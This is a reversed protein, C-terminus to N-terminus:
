WTLYHITYRVQSYRFKKYRCTKSSHSGNSEILKSVSAVYIYSLDLGKFRGM